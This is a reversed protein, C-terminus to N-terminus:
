HRRSGAYPVLKALPKGTADLLVLEGQELKVKTTGRFATFIGRQVEMAGPPQLCAMETALNQTFGATGDAEVHFNAGYANCGARGAAHNDRFRLTAPVGPPVAAGGVEVFRWQSGGLNGIDVKAGAVPVAASAPPAPTPDRAAQAACGAAALWALVLITMPRM